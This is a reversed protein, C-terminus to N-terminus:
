FTSNILFFVAYLLILPKAVWKGLVTNLIEPFNKDPYGLQIGTYVWLMIFGVLMRLLIAIWADQKAEIGRAFLTTSGIEHLVILSFLQTKSIHEVKMCIM